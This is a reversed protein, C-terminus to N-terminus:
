SDSRLSRGVRPALLGPSRGPTKKKAPRLSQKRDCMSHSRRCALASRERNKQPTITDRALVRSGFNGRCSHWAHFRIRLRAHIGRKRRLVMAIAQSCHRML